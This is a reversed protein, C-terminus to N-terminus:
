GAPCPAGADVWTRFAGSFEKHPVDVPARGVGPEWGWLVLKDKDVHEFMAELDRDGNQSRDKIMACLTAAPVGIWAMKHEPPPLSWHPAGPPTNSVYSAPANREGHCSACPLGAAGTGAPGRAVPPVHTLSADYQLPSDGPIHCNRCRPHQFVKEVTAFAALGADTPQATAGCGILPLALLVPALVRLISEFRFGTM